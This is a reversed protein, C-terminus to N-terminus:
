KPRKKKIIELVFYPYGLGNKGNLAIDDGIGVIRRIKGVTRDMDPTIWSNNWGREDEVAAWLVKVKDGVKVQHEEIWAKQKKLYIEHKKQTTM